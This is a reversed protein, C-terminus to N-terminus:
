RQKALSWTTGLKDRLVLIKGGRVAEFHAAFSESSGEFRNTCTLAFGNAKFAGRYVVRNFKMNGVAGSAGAHDSEYTGNANFTYRDSTAVGTAGAYAGTSVYYYSLTSSDGAGWTGTLEAATVPFRNRLQMDSLKEWGFEENRYPGFTAEHDARSPAVFELYRGNGNSSHKKFLVVYVNRGTSKETLDAEIFTISEFSQISRRRYNRMNDYRPSILLNWARVDGRELSSEYADAQQNPYHIRVKLSGRTVEVFDPTITADSQTTTAVAEIRALLRDLDATFQPTNTLGIASAGRGGAIFSILRAYAPQNNFTITVESRRREAGNLSEPTTITPSGTIPFRRTVEMKFENDFEERSTALANHSRNIILQAWQGRAADVRSFVIAEPKSERRWGSPAEFRLLDFTEVQALLTAATLFLTAFKM